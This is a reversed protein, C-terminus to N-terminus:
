NLSVFANRAKHNARELEVAADHLRKNHKQLWRDILCWQKHTAQVGILKVFEILPLNWEPNSGSTSM